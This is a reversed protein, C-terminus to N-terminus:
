VEEFLHTAQVYEEADLAAAADNYLSEVSREEAVDPKKESGSCAAVVMVALPLIFNKLVRM